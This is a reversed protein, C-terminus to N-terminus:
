VVLAGLNRTAIYPLYENGVKQDEFGSHFFGTNRTVTGTNVELSIILM